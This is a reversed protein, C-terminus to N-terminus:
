GQSASPLDHHTPIERHNHSAPPKLPNVKNRKSAEYSEVEDGKVNMLEDFKWADSKSERAIYVRIENPVKSMM